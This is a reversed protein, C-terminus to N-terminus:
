YGAKAYALDVNAQALREEIRFMQRTLNDATRQDGSKEARAIQSKYVEIQAQYQAIKKSATLQKQYARQENQKALREERQQEHLAQKAARQEEVCERSQRCLRDMERNFDRVSDNYRSIKDTAKDFWGGAHVPASMIAFSFLASTVIKLTSIKM